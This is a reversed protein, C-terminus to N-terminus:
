FKRMYAINHERVKKTKNEFDIIAAIGNCLENKTTNVLNKVYTYAQNEAKALSLKKGINVDFTDNDKTFVVAKATQTMHMPSEHIACKSAYLVITPVDAIFKLKCIVVGNAEDVIYKPQQFSIKINNRM